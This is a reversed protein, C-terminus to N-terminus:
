SVEDELYTKYSSLLYGQYHGALTTTHKSAIYSSNVKDNISSTLETNKSFNSLKADDSLLKSEIM